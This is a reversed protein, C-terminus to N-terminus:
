QPAHPSEFRKPLNTLYHLPLWQPLEWEQGTIESAIMRALVDASHHRTMRTCLYSPTYSGGLPVHCAMVQSGPSSTNVRMHYVELSLNTWYQDLRHCRIPLKQLPHGLFILCSRVFPDGFETFGM